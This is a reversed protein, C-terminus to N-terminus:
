YKVCLFQGGSFHLKLNQKKAFDRAAKAVGYMGWSAKSGDENYKHVTEVDGDSNRKEEDVDIADDGAILGGIRVKPYWCNLDESVYKYRHNGDIYLFDLSADPFQGAADKSFSRVFRARDGFRGLRAVAEAYVMDLDILNMGDLYADYSKYPDVCYLTSLKTRALLEESFAAGFVGVEVGSGNLALAEIARFIDERGDYKMVCEVLTEWTM